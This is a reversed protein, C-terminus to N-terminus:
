LRFFKQFGASKPSNGYIEHNHVYEGTLFSSRSPCCLSQTAYFRDFTAGKAAIDSMVHPMFQMDSKAADDFFMFIINPPVSSRSIPPAYLIPVWLVVAVVVWRMYWKRRM